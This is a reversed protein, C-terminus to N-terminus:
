EFIKSCTDCTCQKKMLPNNDTTEVDDVLQLRQLDYKGSEWCLVWAGGGVCM